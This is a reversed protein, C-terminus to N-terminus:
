AHIEERTRTEYEKVRCINRCRLADHVVIVGENSRSSYNDAHICRQGRKDDSGIEIVNEEALIPLCSIDQPDGVRLVSESRRTAIHLWRTM